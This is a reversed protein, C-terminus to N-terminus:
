VAGKLAALGRELRGLGAGLAASATIEFIADESYGAQRLAQVDGDTVRFPQQAVKDVLTSLVAPVGPEVGPRGGLGAARAEVAARLSAETVGSTGLVAGRLRHVLGSYRQSMAGM